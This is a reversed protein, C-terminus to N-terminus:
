KMRLLFFVTGQGMRRTGLSSGRSYDPPNFRAVRVPKKLLIERFIKSAVPVSTSGIRRNQTKCHTGRSAPRKSNTRCTARKEVWGDGWNHAGFLKARMRARM